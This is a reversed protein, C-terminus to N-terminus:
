RTAEPLLRKEVADAVELRARKWAYAVDDDHVGDTGTPPTETKRLWAVVDRATPCGPNFPTGQLPRFRRLIVLALTRSNNCGWPPSCYAGAHEEDYLFAIVDGATRFGVHWSM